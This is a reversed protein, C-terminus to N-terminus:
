IAHSLDATLSQALHRDIQKQEDPVSVYPLAALEMGRQLWLDSFDQVSQMDHMSLNRFEKLAGMCSVRDMFRAKLETEFVQWPIVQLAHQPLFVTDLWNTANGDLHM